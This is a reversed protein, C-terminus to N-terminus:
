SAESSTAEPQTEPPFPALIKAVVADIAAEAATPDDYNGPKWTGTGRWLLTRASPDLIDIVLSAEAVTRLPTGTGTGIAIGGRSGFSGIGFQVGGGGGDVRDRVLYQYRVKFTADPADTRHFGKETLVRDVAKRIRQDQLPNDIRLDGERPQKASVWDFTRLGSLDTAPDYDQSVQITACGTVTLWILATIISRIRMRHGKQESQTMAPPHPRAIEVRSGSGEAERYGEAKILKGMVQVLSFRRYGPIGDPESEMGAPQFGGFPPLGGASFGFFIFEVSASGIILDGHQDVAGSDEAPDILVVELGRRKGGARPGRAGPWGTRSRDRQPRSAPRPM